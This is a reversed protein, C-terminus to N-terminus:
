GNPPLLAFVVDENEVTLQTFQKEFINNSYCRINDDMKTMWYGPFVRYVNPVLKRDVLIFPTGDDKHKLEGVHAAVNGINEETIQVANVVFPRRVFQKFEFDM